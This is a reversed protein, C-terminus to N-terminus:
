CLFSVTEKTTAVGLGGSGASGVNVLYKKNTIPPTYNPDPRIHATGRHVGLMGTTEDLLSSLEQVTHIHQVTIAQLVSDLENQSQKSRRCEELLKKNM